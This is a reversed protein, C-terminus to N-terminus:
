YLNILNVSSSIDNIAPCVTTAAGNTGVNLDPSIRTFLVLWDTSVSVTVLWENLVPYVYEEDPIFIRGLSPVTILGEAVDVM